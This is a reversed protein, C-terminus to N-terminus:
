DLKSMEIDEATPVYAESFAIKDVIWQYGAAVSAHLVKDAKKCLSDPGMDTSMSAIGVLKSNVFAPGGSDGLCLSGTEYKSSIYKFDGFPSSKVKPSKLIAFKLIAAYEQKENMGFGGVILQDTKEPFEKSLTAPEMHLPKNVRFVGFDVASFKNDYVWLPYDKHKWAGVGRYEPSNAEWKARVKWNKWSICHAATLITYKGVVVGTCSSVSNYLLVTHKLLLKGVEDKESVIKGDRIQVDTESKKTCASTYLLFLAPLTRSFYSCLPFTDFYKLIHILM